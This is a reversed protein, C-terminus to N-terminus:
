ESSKWTVIFHGWKKNQNRVMKVAHGQNRSNKKKGLFESHKGAWKWSYKKQSANFEARWLNPGLTIRWPQQLFRPLHLGRNSLVVCCLVSSFLLISSIVICHLSYSNLCCYVKTLKINWCVLAPIFCCNQHHNETNSSMNTKLYLLHIPATTRSDFKLLKFNFFLDTNEVSRPPVFARCITTM